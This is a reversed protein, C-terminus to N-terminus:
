ATAREAELEAHVHAIEGVVKAYEAEGEPTQDAALASQRALLKSLREQASSATAPMPISTTSAGVKGARLINSAFASAEKLVDVLPMVKEPLGTLQLSPSQGGPFDLGAGEADQGGFLRPRAGQRFLEHAVARRVAGPPFLAPIRDSSPWPWAADIERGLEVIKRFAKDCQTIAAQLEAGAADRDALKKEIRAILGEREKARKEGAQKEAEAELLAIRDRETKAKHQLKSLDADIVAIADANEGDLLRERRKSALTASRTEIEQLTARAVTLAAAPDPKRVM